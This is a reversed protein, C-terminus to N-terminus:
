IKRGQTALKDLVGIIADPTAASNALLVARELADDRSHKGFFDLLYDGSDVGALGRADDKTLRRVYWVAYGNSEECCYVEVYRAPGLPNLDPDTQWVIKRWLHNKKTEAIYDM